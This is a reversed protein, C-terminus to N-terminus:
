RIGTDYSVDLWTLAGDAVTFPMPAPTGMLGELPQAELTYDGAKLSWRFLGSGDMTSRLVEAGAADKVVLVANAVMRPACSPDDPREVPCTPGAFVRGGAGPGKATARLGALVQAALPSGDEAVFTVTGDHTVNWTWGHRDICGSPCDGWGVTFRITWGTPPTTGDGPQAEWWRDQGIMDKRQPGIGDFLPTRAQIAAVAAEPTDVAGPTPAPTAGPTAGPTANPTAGSGTCGAVVVAGLLLSALAIVRPRVTTLMARHRARGVIPEM